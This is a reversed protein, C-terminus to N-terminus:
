NNAAVLEQRLLGIFIEEFHTLIPAYGSQYKKNPPPGIEAVPNLRPWCNDVIIKEIITPVAVLEPRLLGSFVGKPIRFSEVL